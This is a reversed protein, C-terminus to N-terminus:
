YTETGSEGSDPKANYIMAPIEVYKGINLNGSWLVRPKLRHGFQLAIRHVMGSSKASIDTYYKVM